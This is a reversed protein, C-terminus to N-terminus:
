RQHRTMAHGFHLRFMGSDVFKWMTVLFPLGSAATAANGSTGVCPLSQVKRM